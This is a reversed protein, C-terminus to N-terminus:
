LSTAFDPTPQPDRGVGISLDVGTALPLTASAGRTMGTIQAIVTQASPLLFRSSLTAIPEPLARATGAAVGSGPEPWRDTKVKCRIRLTRGALRESKDGSRQPFDEIETVGMHALRFTEAGADLDVAGGLSLRRRVQSGLIDVLSEHEQSTVPTLSGEITQPQGNGDVYDVSGKVIVATELVLWVHVDKPDVRDSGYGTARAEETYICLSPGEDLDSVGDLPFQRSDYVRDGAITANVLAEKAALRLALYSLM